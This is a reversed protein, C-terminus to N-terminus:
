NKLVLISQKGKLATMIKDAGEKMVAMAMGDSVSSVELRGITTAYLTNPDLSSARSQVVKLKNGKKPEGAVVRLVLQPAPDGEILDVVIFGLKETMSKQIASQAKGNTISALAERPTGYAQPATLTLRCAHGLIGSPCNVLPGSDITVVDSMVMAGSSVDLIRVLARVQALHLTTGNPQPAPKVDQGIVWGALVYNANLQADQAIQVLSNLSTPETSKSLEAKIAPDGARALVATFWGSEQLANEVAIGIAAATETMEPAGAGFPLVAITGRKIESQASALAPALALGALLYTAFKM